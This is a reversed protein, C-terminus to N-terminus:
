GETKKNTKAVIEGEKNFYPNIFSEDIYCYAWYENPEASIVVPHKESKCHKTMHRNPSSDCCLTAGCTQCKRLHVWRDGTKACEECYNKDPVKLEVTQLHNCPEPRKLPM